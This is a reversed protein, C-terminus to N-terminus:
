EGLNGIAFVQHYHTIGQFIECGGRRNMPFPKVRFTVTTDSSSWFLGYRVAFHIVFARHEETKVDRLEFEQSVKRFNEMDIQWLPVNTSSWNM